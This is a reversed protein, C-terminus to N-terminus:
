NGSHLANSSNAVDHFQKPWASQMLPSGSDEVACLWSYGCAFYITGDPAISASSNPSYIRLNWKLSGDPKLAVLAFEGGVYITGDAALAPSTLFHTRDKFAYRWKVTGDPDIAFVANGDTLYVTGEADIVPSGIVSGSADFQWKKSGSSDIAFLTSRDDGVYITGDSALAGQGLHGSSLELEWERSGGSSVSDLFNQRPLIISGNSTVLPAGHRVMGDSEASGPLVNPTGLMGPRFTELSWYKEESVKPQFAYIDSVNNLFYLTTNAGLAPPAGFGILGYGPRWVLTGDKSVGFMLGHQIDLYLTGDESVVPTGVGGLTTEWLLKGDPSIAQLGKNSGIYITGDSGLAPHSVANGSTKFQWKIHPGASRSVEKKGCSTLVLLACSLGALFWLRSVLSKWYSTKWQTLSSTNSMQQSM